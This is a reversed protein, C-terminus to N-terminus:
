KRVAGALILLHVRVRGITQNLGGASPNTRGGELGRDTRRGKGRNGIMFQESFDALAAVSLNPQCPSDQTFVTRDLHNIAPRKAIITWKLTLKFAELAVLRDRTGM